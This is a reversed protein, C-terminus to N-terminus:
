SKEIANVVKVVDVMEAVDHVRVVSVGAAACLAVTAATGFIRDAPKEKGTIKGIFSKRSTGICVRYGTAVFKDINRLLELNHEFTKGFGIGPDIFIMEKSIGFKVMGVYINDDFLRLFHEKSNVQTVGVSQCAELFNELFIDFSDVIVGDFDFILINM